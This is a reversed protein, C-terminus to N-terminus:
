IDDQLGVVENLVEENPCTAEWMAEPWDRGLVQTIGMASIVTSCSDWAQDVGSSAKPGLGFGEREWTVQLGSVAEWIHVRNREKAVCPQKPCLLSPYLALHKGLQTGTGSGQSRPSGQSGQCCSQPEWLEGPSRCLQTLHSREKSNQMWIRYNSVLRNPSLQTTM